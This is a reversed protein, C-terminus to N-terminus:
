EGWFDAMDVKRRVGLKMENKIGLLEEVDKKNYPSCPNDIGGKVFFDRLLEGYMKYNFTISVPKGRSTREVTIGSVRAM